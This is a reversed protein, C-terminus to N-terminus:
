NKGLGMHQIHFHENNVKTMNGYVHLERIIACGNLFPFLNVKTENNDEKNKATFVHSLIM